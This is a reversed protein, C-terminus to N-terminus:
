ISSALHKAISGALVPYGANRRPHYRHILFHKSAEEHDVRPPRDLLLSVPRGVLPAWCLCCATGLLLSAHGRRHDVNRCEGLLFLIHRKRRRSPKTVTHRKSSCPFPVHQHDSVALLAKQQAWLESEVPHGITMKTTKTTKTM